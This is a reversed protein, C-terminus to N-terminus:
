NTVLSAGNSVAAITASTNTAAPAVAVIVHTNNPRTIPLINCVGPLNRANLKVIARIKNPCQLTLSFEAQSFHIENGRKCGALIDHEESRSQVGIIFRM